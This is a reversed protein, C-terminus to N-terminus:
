TTEKRFRLRKAFQIAMKSASAKYGSARKQTRTQHFFLGTVNPFLIPRSQEIAEDIRASFTDKTPKNLWSRPLIM